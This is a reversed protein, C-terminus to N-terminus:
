SAPPTSLLDLRRFAERIAVPTAILRLYRYAEQIDNEVPTQVTRHGSVHDNPGTGHVVKVKGDPHGWMDVYVYSPEPVLRSLGTRALDVHHRRDGGLFIWGENPALEGYRPANGVIRRIEQVVVQVAIREIWNRNHGHRNSSLSVPMDPYARNIRTLVPLSLKVIEQSIDWDIQAVSDSCDHRFNRTRFIEMATREALLINRTTPCASM